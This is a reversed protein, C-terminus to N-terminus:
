FPAATTAFSSYRAKLSGITCIALMSMPHLISQIPFGFRVRGIRGLWQSNKSSPDELDRLHKTKLGDGNSVDDNVPLTNRRLMLSLCPQPNGKAREKRGNHMRRVAKPEDALLSGSRSLLSYIQSSENDM